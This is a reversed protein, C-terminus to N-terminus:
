IAYSCNVSVINSGALTGTLLNVNVVGSSNVFLRGAIGPAGFVSAFVVNAATPALDAPVDGVAVASTSWSAANNLLRGRLYAVGGIRRYMPIESSGQMNARLPLIQWGSDYHQGAPDTTSAHNAIESTIADNIGDMSPVDTPQLLAM